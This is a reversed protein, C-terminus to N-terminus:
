LKVGEILKEVAAKAYDLAEDILENATDTLHSNDCGPYNVGVGWLSAADRAILVDNFPHHPVFVRHSVSLVIGCYFWDDNCWVKHIRQAQALQTEYEEPEEPEVYGAHKPNKSPWFGADRDEPKEGSDDRVITATITFGDIETTITDGECAYTRFEETFQTNAM